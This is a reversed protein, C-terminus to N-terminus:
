KVATVAVAQVPDSGTSATAVSDLKGSTAADFSFIQLDPGGGASVVALFKGSPDLTMTQPGTVSTFTGATFPSSSLATLTGNVGLSFGSIKGAGRTAVYLFSGTSDMAFASPGAGTTFPSGSVEVLAGGTGITFVRVANIGTEGVFLFKTNPDALVALDANPGGTGTTPKLLLRNTLAGSTSNFTFVDVGGTQLAVYAFQNNPTIYVQSPSAPQDLPITAPNAATLVGTTANIQFEFISGSIGDVALLWTGTSDIVMSTPSFGSAVPSGNNVATITGDANITYAVINGSQGGVYLFSGSPTAVLTTPGAAVSFTNGNNLATLTGATTSVSFGAVSSAQSNAIYIINGTSGPPNTTDVFFKGCGCLVALLPFLLYKTFRM